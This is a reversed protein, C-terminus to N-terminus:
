INYYARLGLAHQLKLAPNVGMDIREYTPNYLLQVTIKPNLNLNAGIGAFAGLGFGVPRRFLLANAFAANNFYSTLDVTLSNIQIENKDFKALTAHLGGEVLWNLKAYEGFIHQYGFQLMMRQEKGRIEFTKIRNNMQTSNSQQPTVITFNGSATLNAVSLNILISNAVDVSYISHLGLMMTPSYRMNTPMDGPTFSWTQYDVNLLQAIQDPQGPYGYGGLELNIKQNMLSNDWNNRAGDIDFGYGDYMNATYQNAFYGGIYLGFRFGKKQVYPENDVTQTETDTIEEEEQAISFNSILLLSAVFLLKNVIKLRM